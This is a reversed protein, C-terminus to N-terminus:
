LKYGKCIVLYAIAYDATRPKKAVLSEFVFDQITLKSLKISKKITKRELLLLDSMYYIYSYVISELSAAVM